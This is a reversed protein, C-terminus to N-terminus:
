SDEYFITNPCRDLLRQRDGRHEPHVACFIGDVGRAVFEEVCAEFRVPGVVTNGILLQCDHKVAEEDLYEVLYSRLPDGASAVLRGFVNPRKGRPQRAAMGPRYNLRRAAEVVREATLHSVRTNGRGGHLATSVVATSVNAERAVDVLRVFREAEPIRRRSESQARKGM